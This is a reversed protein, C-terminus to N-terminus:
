QQAEQRWAEVLKMLEQRAQDFETGASLTSYLRRHFPATSQICNDLARLFDPIKSDFASFRLVDKRTAKRTLNLRFNKLEILEGRLFHAYDQYIQRKLLVFENLVFIKWFLRRAAKPKAEQDDICNSSRFLCAAGQPSVILCEAGSRNTFRRKLDLIQVTKDSSVNLLKQAITNTTITDSSVKLMSHWPHERLTTNPAQYISHSLLARVRDLIDHLKGKHLRSSWMWQSKTHAPHTERLIAQLSSIGQDVLGTLSIALHLTLYGSPYIHVFIKGEARTSSSTTAILSLPKRLEFCLYNMRQDALQCDYGFFDDNESAYQEADWLSLALDQREGSGGFFHNRRTNLCISGLKHIFPKDPFPIKEPEVEKSQKWALEEALHSRFCESSDRISFKLRDLCHKHFIPQWVQRIHDMSPFPRDRISLIQTYVIYISTIDPDLQSLQM